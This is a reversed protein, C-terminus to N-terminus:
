LAKLMDDFEGLVHQLSSRAQVERMIERAYHWEPGGMSDRAHRLAEAIEEPSADNDMLYPYDAGLYFSADGASKQIMMNAGRHAAVFGKLFPKAGDIGRSQRFAYHFNYNELANIWDNSPKSTDVLNFDVLEEIDEHQITNVLEGFYGARFDETSAEECRAIRTDVHHTVHSAPVNPFYSLYDRYGCLSSAMLMDIEGILEKRPPEDVFDAILINDRRLARLEDPTTMKLFGKALVVVNNHIEAPDSVYRM